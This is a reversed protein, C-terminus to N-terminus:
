KRRSITDEFLGHNKDYKKKLNLENGLVYLKGDDEEYLGAYEDLTDPQSIDALTSAVNDKTFQYENAYRQLHKWLDQEKIAPHNKIYNYVFKRKKDSDKVIEEILYDKEFKTFYLTGDIVSGIDNFRRFNMIQWYSIFFNDKLIDNITYM